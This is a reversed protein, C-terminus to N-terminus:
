DQFQCLGENEEEKERGSYEAYSPFNTITRVITAQFRLPEGSGKLIFEALCFPGLLGKQDLIAARPQYLAGLLM